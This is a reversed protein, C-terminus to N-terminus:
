LNHSIIILDNIQNYSVQVADTSLYGSVNGMGYQLNIPTGIPLYTSSKTSDYKSCFVIFFTFLILHTLLYIYAM